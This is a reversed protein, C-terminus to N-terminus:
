PPTTAVREATILWQAGVRRWQLTKRVTDSYDQARYRQEFRAEAVGDALAAWTLGRMQVNLAGPKSLRQQRQKLWQAHGLGDVAYGPTYHALYADVSKANWAALWASLEREPWGALPVNAPPATAGTPLPTTVPASAAVVATLAVGAASATAADVPAPETSPKPSTALRSAWAGAATPVEPRAMPAESGPLAAPGSALAALLQGGLVQQRLRTQLLRAQQESVRQALAYRSERLQMLQQVSRRGAEFQLEGARQLAQLQQGQEAMLRLSKELAEARPLLAELEASATQAVGQQDADAAEARSLSEDRRALTEGGLPVDWNLGLTWGRQQVTSVQPTTHDSLKKRLEFDLRPALAEPVSRMRLRAAEARAQAARLAAHDPGAPTAWVAPWPMPVVVGVPEGALVQLRAQAASREAHLLDNSMEADLLANQAQQVDAEAARGLESQRTVQQALRRVDALRERSAPRLADLRQAEFWAEALRAAVEDQARRVDENAATQESEAARWEARDAGGNYLNWRLLAESRQVSRDVATRSELDSSNGRTMQVGASPAMRSRLQRLRAEAIAAGAQASRVQPDRTLVRALLSPFDGFLGSAPAVVPPNVPPTGSESATLAAPELAVAAGTPLAAAHALGSAGASLCLLWSALAVAGPRARLGTPGANPAAVTMMTPHLNM